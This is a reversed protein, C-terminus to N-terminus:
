PSASAMRPAERHAPEDIVFYEAPHFGGPGAIVSWPFRHIRTNLQMVQENYFQRSFAIKNETATLEDQLALLNSNTRLEPYTEAVTFLGRLAQSLRNEAEAQESIGRAEMAQERARSVTELLDREHKMGSKATEILNPTLDHRRKLQREISSWANQVGSRLSALRNYSGIIALGAVVLIGILVWAGM